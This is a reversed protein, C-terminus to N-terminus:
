LETRDTFGLDIRHRVKTRCHPCLGSVSGRSDYEDISHECIPCTPNHYEAM